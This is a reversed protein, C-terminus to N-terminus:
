DMEETRNGHPHEKTGEVIVAGLVLRPRLGIIHLLEFSLRIWFSTYFIWFAVILYGTPRIFIGVPDHYRAPVIGALTSPAVASSTRPM